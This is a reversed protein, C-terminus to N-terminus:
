VSPNFSQIKTLLDRAKLTNKPAILQALSYVSQPEGISQAQFPAPKFDENIYSTDNTPKDVYIVSPSSSPSRAYQGASTAINMGQQRAESPGGALEIHWPEHGMRFNMGFDAAHDHAWQRDEDTAFHLDAALGFNHQSGQSGYMGPPPAVWHRAADVSGYKAVANQFLEAQHEPSRYGSFISIGPRAAIMQQLANAFYPNFDQFGSFAM